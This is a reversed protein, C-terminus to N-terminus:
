RTSLYYGGAIGAAFSASIVWWSTGGASLEKAKKNEAKLRTEAAQLRAVEADLAEWDQESIHIGPPLEVESGGETVCQAPSHLHLPEAAASTRLSLFVLVAAVVALKRRFIM